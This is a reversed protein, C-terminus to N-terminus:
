FFLEALGNLDLARVPVQMEKELEELKMGDLMISEGSKLSSSPIIVFDGQV